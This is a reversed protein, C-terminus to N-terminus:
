SPEPVEDAIASSDLNGALFATATFRALRRAREGRVLARRPFRLLGRHRFKSFLRPVSMFLTPRARKLDDLFTAMSESFFVRFGRLLSQTEVFWREFAHALPLYSLMRDRSDTALVESLAAASSAMAGFSQMVWKPDGTSGSTYLITALEEPDRDPSDTLPETGAVIEYLPISVHGSMMIALDAILWHATNKSLLAVHSGPALDLSRLYAAMRRAQDITQRWTFDVVRGGGMPQTLYIRDPSASEWHYAGALPTRLETPSM